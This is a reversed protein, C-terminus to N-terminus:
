NQNLEPLDSQKLYAHGDDVIEFIVVRFDVTVSTAFRTIRIGREWGQSVLCKIVTFRCQILQM